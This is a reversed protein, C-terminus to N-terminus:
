SMKSQPTYVFYMYSVHMEANLTVTSFVHIWYSHSSIYIHVTQNHQGSLAPPYCLISALLIFVLYAIPVGFQSYIAPYLVTHMVIQYHCDHCWLRGIETRM